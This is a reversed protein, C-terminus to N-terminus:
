RSPAPMAPSRRSHGMFPVERTGYHEASHADFSTPRWEDSVLLGALSTQSLYSSPDWDRFAHEGPLPAIEDDEVMSAWYELKGWLPSAEALEATPEDLNGFKVAGYVALMYSIFRDDHSGKPAELTKKVISAIERKTDKCPIALYGPAALAEFLYDSAELKSKNSTPFGPRPDTVEGKLRTHRKRHYVNPYHQAMLLENVTDGHGGTSEVILMANAYWIGLRILVHTLEISSIWGHMHACLDGSQSVVHLSTFDGSHQPGAVDVGIFYKTQTLPAQWLRLRDNNQVGPEHPAFYPVRGEMLIDGVRPEHEEHPDILYAPFLKDGAQYFVEDADAPHEQSLRSKSHRFERRKREYWEEDRGPVSRWGHFRAEWESEGDVADQWQTHYHSGAEGKGTGLAIIQGHEAAPLAAALAEDPNKHRPWEDLVILTPSDGRAPEGGALSEIVSDHHFEIVDKARNTVQMRRRLWPPLFAYGSNRINKVAKKALTETESFYQVQAGPITGALWFSRGSMLTTYGIQRSKLVLARLQPDSDFWALDDLQYPYLRMKVTSRRELTRDPVHWYEDIFYQCSAIIKRWEVEEQVANQPTELRM